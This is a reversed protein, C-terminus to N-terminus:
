GFIIYDGKLLSDFTFTQGVLTISGDGWSIVTDTNVGTVALSGSEHLQVFEGESMGNFQLHDHGQGFDTLIDYGDGHVSNALTFSNDYQFTIGANKQAGAVILTDTTDLDLGYQAVLADHWGDLQHAYADWATQKAQAAPSDGDRFWQV